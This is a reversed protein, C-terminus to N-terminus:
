FYNGISIQFSSFKMSVFDNSVVKSFFGNYNVELFLKGNLFTKPQIGIGLNYGILFKKVYRNMILQDRNGIMYNFTPAFIGYFKVAQMEYEPQFSIQFVLFDYAHDLTIFEGTGDPNESTTVPIKDEAGIQKYGMEAVFSINDTKFIQAFFGYNSGIRANRYLNWYYNKIDIDVAKSFTVGIKIGYNTVSQASTLTFLFLLVILIKTKM